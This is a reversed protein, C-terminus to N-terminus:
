GKLQDVIFTSLQRYGVPNDANNRLFEETLRHNRKQQNTTFHQSNLAYSDIYHSVDSFYRISLKLTATAHNSHLTASLDATTPTPTMITDVHIEVGARHLQNHLQALYYFTGPRMILPDNM